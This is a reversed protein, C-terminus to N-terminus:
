QNLYTRIDGFTSQWLTYFLKRCDIKLKNLGELYNSFYTRMFLSPGISAIVAFIRACRLTIDM